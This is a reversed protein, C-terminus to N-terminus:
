VWGAMKKRFEGLIERQRHSLMEDGPEAFERPLTGAHQNFASKGAAVTVIQHM